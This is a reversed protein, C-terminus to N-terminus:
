RHVHAGVEGLQAPSRHTHHTRPDLRDEVDGLRELHQLGLPDGHQAIVGGVEGGEERGLAAAGRGKSCVGGQLAGLDDTSGQSQAAAMTGALM